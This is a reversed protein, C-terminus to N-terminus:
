RNARDVERKTLAVSAETLLVDRTHHGYLASIFHEGATMRQATIRDPNRLRELKMETLKQFERGKLKPDKTKRVVRGQKRIAKSQQKVNERAIVIKKSESPPKSVGSSTRRVGWHMGKVGFHALAEEVRMSGFDIPEKM